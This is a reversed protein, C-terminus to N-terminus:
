EEHVQNTPGAVFTCLWVAAHPARGLVFGRRIPTIVRHALDHRNANGGEEGRDDDAGPGHGASGLGVARRRAVGGHVREQHHHIHVIQGNVVDNVGNSATEVQNSHREEIRHAPM